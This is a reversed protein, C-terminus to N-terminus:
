GKPPWVDALARFGSVAAPWGAYHAAHIILEEIKECPRGLNRADTFHVCMEDECNLAVLM